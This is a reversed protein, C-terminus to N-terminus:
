FLQNLEFVPLLVALVIFGIVLGMVLLIVPEILSLLTRSTTEIEKEYMDAIDLLADDLSASAQGTAIIHFVIPPFLKTEKVASALGGGESISRKIDDLANSIYKNKVIRKSIELAELVSIGNALMSAITRTLKAIEIKLSLKGFLPIKLKIRGWIVKASSERSWLGFGVTAFVVMVTIVLVFVSMYDSVVMLVKTPWPLSRNFEIFIETLSPVVFMMLFTVVAVAVIIMMVPYALASKLKSLLELRKQQMQALQQLVEDVRGGAEGAAVINVFVPSFLDPYKSLAASFSSGANIDSIIKELVDALENKKLTLFWIKRSTHGHHLQEVLASLAPVLPMGAKLLTALQATFRSIQQASVRKKLHGTKAQESLDTLHQTPAPLDQSWGDRSERPLETTIIQNDDITNLKAQSV